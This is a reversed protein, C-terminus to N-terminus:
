AVRRRRRAILGLGALGLVAATTPEPIAVAFFELDGTNEYLDFTSAGDSIDTVTGRFIFYDALDWDTLDSTDDDLYTSNNNIDGYWHILGDTHLKGEIEFTYPSTSTLTENFEISSGRFISNTRSGSNGTIAWNVSQTANPTGLGTTPGAYDVPNFNIGATGYDLELRFQDAVVQFLHGNDYGSGGGPRLNPNFNFTGSTGSAPASPSGVVARLLNPPNNLDNQLGIIGNSITGWSIETGNPVSWVNAFTSSGTTTFVAAALLYTLRVSM